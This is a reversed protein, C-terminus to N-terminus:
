FVYKKDTSEHIAKDMKKIYEGICREMIPIM